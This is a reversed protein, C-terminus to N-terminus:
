SGAEKMYMPALAEAARQVEELTQFEGIHVDNVGCAIYMRLKYPGGGKQRVIAVAESQHRGGPCYAWSQLYKSRKYCWAFDEM